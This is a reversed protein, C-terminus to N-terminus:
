FKFSRYPTYFDITQKPISNGGMRGDYMQNIHFLMGQKIPAPVSSADDGYGTVYTIDIRRGIPIVCFILNRNGASLYYGGSNITSITTDFAVVNVSSVSQVPGMPLFVYNPVYRDYSLKWTQTILSSNLFNEADKRATQILSNILTDDNSNLIRLFSKVESALLPEIQPSITCILSPKPNCSNYRNYPSYPDM